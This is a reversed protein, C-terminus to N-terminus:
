IEVLSINRAKLLKKKKGHGIQMPAFELWGNRFKTYKPIAPFTLV